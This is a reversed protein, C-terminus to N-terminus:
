LPPALPPSRCRRHHLDGAGFTLIGQCGAHAFGRDPNSTCFDCGPLYDPHRKREYPGIVRFTPGGTRGKWWLFPADMHRLETRRYPERANAEGDRIEITRDGEVPLQAELNPDRIIAQPEHQQAQSGAGQPEELDAPAARLLRIERLLQPRQHLDLELGVIEVTEILAEHLSLNRHGRRWPVAAKLTRHLAAVGVAERDLESLPLTTM